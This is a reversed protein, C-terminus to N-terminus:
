SDHIITSYVNMYLKKHSCTKMEIPYIGPPQIALDCPLELNLQKFFQWSTECLLLVRKCERQGHPHWNRWTRALM